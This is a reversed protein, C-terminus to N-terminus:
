IKAGVFNNLQYEMLKVARIYLTIYYFIRYSDSKYVCRGLASHKYNLYPHTVVAKYYYHTLPDITSRHLKHKTSLFHNLERKPALAKYLISAVAEHKM